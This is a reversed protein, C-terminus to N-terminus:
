QQQDMQLEKAYRDFCLSFFSSGVLYFIRIFAKIPPSSQQQWSRPRPPTSLLRKATSVRVDVQMLRDGLGQNSYDKKSALKSSFARWWLWSPLSKPM